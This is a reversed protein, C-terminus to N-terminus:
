DGARASISPSPTGRWPSLRPRAPRSPLAMRLRPRVGNHAVARGASGSIQRWALLGGVPAGRIEPLLAEGARSSKSQSSGFFVDVFGGLAGIQVGSTATDFRRAIM